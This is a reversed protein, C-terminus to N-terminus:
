TIKFKWMTSTLAYFECVKDCDRMAYIVEDSIDKPHSTMFRIRELGEIENVIRLLEAFTVPNDLTKVM